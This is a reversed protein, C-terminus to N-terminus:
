KLMGELADHISANNSSEWRDIAVQITDHDGGRLHEFYSHDSTSYVEGMVSYSGDRMKLPTTEWSAKLEGTLVHSEEEAYGRLEELAENALERYIKKNKCNTLLERLESDEFKFTIGNYISNGGHNGARAM